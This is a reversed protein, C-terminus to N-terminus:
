DRRFAEVDERARAEPRGARLAGYVLTGVFGGWTLGCLVIMMVWTARSM